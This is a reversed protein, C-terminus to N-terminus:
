QLDKNDRTKVKSEEAFPGDYEMFTSYFNTRMQQVMQENALFLLFV